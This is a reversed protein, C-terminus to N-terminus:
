RKERLEDIWQEMRGRLLKSEAILPIYVRTKYIVDEITTSLRYEDDEIILLKREVLNRFIVQLNNVEHPFLQYQNVKCFEVAFENFNSYHYQQHNSSTLLVAIEDGVIQFRIAQVGQAEFNERVICFLFIFLKWPYTFIHQFQPHDIKREPISPVLTHFSREKLPALSLNTSIKRGIQWQEDIKKGLPLDEQVGEQRYTQVHKLYFMIRQYLPPGDFIFNNLYHYQEEKQKLREELRIISFSGDEKIESLISVAYTSFKPLNSVFEKIGVVDEAKSMKITTLLAVKVLYRQYDDKFCFLSRLHDQISQFHQGYSIWNSTIIYRDQTKKILEQNELFSLAENFESEGYDYIQKIWQFNKKVDLLCV